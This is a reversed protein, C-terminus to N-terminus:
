FCLGLFGLMGTTIVLVIGKPHIDPRINLVFLAIAALLMGVVEYIIASKPELYRTTIKPHLGVLGLADFWINAIDV